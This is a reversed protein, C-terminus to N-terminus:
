FFAGEQKAYSRRANNKMHLRRHCDKCVVLLNSALHNYRDGLHHVEQGPAGCIECYPRAKLVQRRVRDYGPGYREWASGRRAYEMARAAPYHTECYGRRTQTGPCGPWRCPGAPKTPM